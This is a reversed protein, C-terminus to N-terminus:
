EGDLIHPYLLLGALFNRSARDFRTIDNLPHSRRRLRTWMIQSIGSSLPISIGARTITGLVSLLPGLETHFPLEPKPKRELHYLVLFAMTTSAVGVICGFIEWSWSCKSAPCKLGLLYKSFM